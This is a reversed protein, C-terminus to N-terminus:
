GSLSDRSLEADSNCTKRRFVFLNIFGAVSRDPSSSSLDRCDSIVLIQTPMASLSTLFHNCRGDHRFIDRQSSPSYLSSCMSSRMHQLDSWLTMSKAHLPCASGRRWCCRARLRLCDRGSRNREVELTRSTASASQSGLMCLEHDRPWTRTQRKNGASILLDKVAVQGM